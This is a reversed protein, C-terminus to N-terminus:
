LVDVILPVRDTGSAVSCPGWKRKCIQILSVELTGLDPAYLGGGDLDPGAVSEEQCQILRWCWKGILVSLCISNITHM